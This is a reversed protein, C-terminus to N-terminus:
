DNTGCQFITQQIADIRGNPRTEYNEVGVTKPPSLKPPLPQQMEQVPRFEAKTPKSTVKKPKNTEMPMSQSILKAGLALAEKILVDGKPLLTDVTPRPPGEFNPPM